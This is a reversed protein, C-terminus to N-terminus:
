PSVCPIEALVRTGDGPPSKVVLHGDVAAVRDSLGRLGSGRDPEAGGVGNDAVMVELRGDTQEVSITVESAQAHKAANALAESVVFYAAAEVTSDFRRGPVAILRTPIPSREALSRLAPGLGEETLPSPHIGRALERLETLASTLGEAISVVSARVDADPGKALKAEIMRADLALTVLRQQAGDHLDRELRRREQDAAALIRARSARVEELQARLEAQLQENDVALRTAAGVSDLLWRDALLGRDHVVAAVPRGDAALFTTTRGSGDEPIKLDQGGPTLYRRAEGDWRGLSLSPDGLARALAAEVEDLRSVCGLEVLLEAARARRAWAWFLGLLFVLPHALGAYVSVTWIATAIDPHTAGLGLHNFAAQVALVLLLPVAALHLTALVHRLVPSARGLRVVCVAALLLLMLELLVFRPLATLEYFRRLAVVFEPHTDVLLLNRCTLCGTSLPDYQLSALVIFLVTWGAAAGVLAREWRHALRGDPFSLLLYALAPLFATELAIGITLLLPVGTAQFAYMSYAFGTAILLWGTRNEPRRCWALLGGAIYLWPLLAWQWTSNGYRWFAFSVAGAILGLVVAPGRTM